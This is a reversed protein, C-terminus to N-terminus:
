TPQINVQYAPKLLGAKKKTEAIKKMMLMVGSSGNKRQQIALLYRVHLEVRVKYSGQVVGVGEVAQLRPAMEWLSCTVLPRVSHGRLMLLGDVLLLLTMIRQDGVMASM